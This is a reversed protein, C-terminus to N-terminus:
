RTTTATMRESTQAGPVDPISTLSVFLVLLLRKTLGEWATIRSHTFAKGAQRLSVDQDGVAPALSM